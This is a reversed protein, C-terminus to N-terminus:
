FLKKRVDMKVKELSIKEERTLHGLNILYNVKFLIKMIRYVFYFAILFWEGLLLMFSFFFLYLSQLYRVMIVIIFFIAEHIAPVALYLASYEATAKSPELKTLFIGFLKIHIFYVINAIIIIAWSIIAFTSSSYNARFFDYGLHTTKLPGIFVLYCFLFAVLDVSFYILLLIPTVKLVKTTM